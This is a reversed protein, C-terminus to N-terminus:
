RKTRITAANAIANADVFIGRFRFGAVERAVELAAHPPAVSLVTAAQKVLAEFWGAGGLGLGAARERTQVGRGASAWLVRNGSAVLTAGIASGMEGPHLLGVVPKETM